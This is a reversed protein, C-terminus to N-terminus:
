LNKGQLGLVEQFCGSSHWWNAGAPFSGAETLSFIWRPSEARYLGSGSRDAAKDVSDPVSSAQHRGPHCHQLRSIPPSPACGMCGCPLTQGPPHHHRCSHTALLVGQASQECGPWWLQGRSCRSSWRTAVMQENQSGSVQQSWHKSNSLWQMHCISKWIRRTWPPSFVQALVGEAWEGTSTSVAPASPLHRSLQCHSCPWTLLPITMQNMKGRKRLCHPPLTILVHYLKM